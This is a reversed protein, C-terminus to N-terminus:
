PPFENNLVFAQHLRGIFALARESLSLSENLALKWIAGIAVSSRETIWNCLLVLSALGAQFKLALYTGLKVHIAVQHATITM